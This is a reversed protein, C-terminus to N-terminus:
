AALDLRARMLPLVPADPLAEWIGLAVLTCGCGECVLTELEELDRVTAETAEACAEDSCILAM